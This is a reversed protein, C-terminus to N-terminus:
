VNGRYAELHGEIEALREERRENEAANASEPTHSLTVHEEELARIVDADPDRKAAQDALTKAERDTLQSYDM